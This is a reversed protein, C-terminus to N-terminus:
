VLSQCNELKEVEVAEKRKNVKPRGFMKVVEPAEVISNKSEPWMKMNPIPQIFYSDAKLYTEKRYCNSIPQSADMNLYNM